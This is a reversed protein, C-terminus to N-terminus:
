LFRFLSLGNDDITNKIESLQFKHNSLSMSRSELILNLFSVINDYLFITIFKHTPKIFISKNIPETKSNHKSATM